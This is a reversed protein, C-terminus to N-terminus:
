RSETLAQAINRAVLVAVRGLTLHNPNYNFPSECVVSCAEIGLLSWNFLFLFPLSQLAYYTLTLLIYQV